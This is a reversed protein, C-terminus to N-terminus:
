DKETADSKAEDLEQLIKHIDGETTSLKRKCVRVLMAARKVKQSLEDISVEGGEIKAVIQQLEEFAAAYTITAEEDTTSKPDNKKM